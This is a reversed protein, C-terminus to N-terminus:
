CYQHTGRGGVIVEGQSAALGWRTVRNNMTDAVYVVESQEDMWVGNPDNLSGEDEGPASSNSGAVRVGATADKKWKQIRNNRSDSVYLTESKRDFYIGDPESLYGDDTGRQDTQGAVVTTLNTSPSWKVVRHRDSESMYVNKHRDVTVGFCSRCEDGIQVGESAGNIWKEVRNGIFISVYITPGHLDEADVYIKSPDIVRFLTTM